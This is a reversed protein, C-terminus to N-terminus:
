PAPWIYLGTVYGGETGGKLAGRGLWNAIMSAAACGNLSGISAAPKLNPRLLCLLTTANTLWYSLQPIDDKHMEM